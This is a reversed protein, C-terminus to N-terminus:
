VLRKTASRVPQSRSRGAAVWYLRHLVRTTEDLRLRKRGLRASRIGFCARELRQRQDLVGVDEVQVTVHQEGEGVVVCGSPLRDRLASGGLRDREVLALSVDHRCASRARTRNWEACLLRPRALARLFAQRPGAAPSAASHDMLFRNALGRALRGTFARPIGHGPLGAANDTSGGGHVGTTGVPTV